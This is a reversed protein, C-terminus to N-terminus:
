PQSRQNVDPEHHSGRGGSRIKRRRREQEHPSPLPPPKAVDGVVKWSLPEGTRSCRVAEERKGNVVRQLPEYRPGQVAPNRWAEFRREAELCGRWWLWRDIWVALAASGWIVGPLWWGGGLAYANLTTQWLLDREVIVITVALAIWLYLPLRRV